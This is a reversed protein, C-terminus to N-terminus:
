VSSAALEAAKRFYAATPDEELDKGLADVVMQGQTIVKNIESGTISTEPAELDSTEVMYVDGFCNILHRGLPAPHWYVGQRNLSKVTVPSGPVYDTRNRLSPIITQTEVVMAAVDRFGWPLDGFRHEMSKHIGLIIWLAEPLEQEAELNLMVRVMELVSREIPFKQWDKLRKSEEAM